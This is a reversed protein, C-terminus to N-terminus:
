AGAAHISLVIKINWCTLSVKQGRRVGWGRGLYMHLMHEIALKRPRSEEGIAEISGRHPRAKIPENVNEGLHVEVLCEHGHQTRAQLCYEGGAILWSFVIAQLMTWRNEFRLHLYWATTMAASSCFLLVAALMCWRLSVSSEKGAAGTELAVEAWTGQNLTDVEDSLYRGTQSDGHAGFLLTHHQIILGSEYADQQGHQGFMSPGALGAAAAGASAAHGNMMLLGSKAGAPPLAASAQLHAEDHSNHCPSPIGDTVGGGDCAGGVHAATDGRGDGVSAQDVMAIGYGMCPKCCMTRAIGVLQRLRCDRYQSVENM